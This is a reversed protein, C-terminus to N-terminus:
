LILSHASYMFNTYFFWIKVSVTSNRAINTCMSYEIHANITNLPMRGHQIFVSAARQKRSFRGSFHFKFGALGFWIQRNIQNERLKLKNLQLALILRNSNEIWWSSMFNHFLQTSGSIYKNFFRISESEHIIIDCNFYWIIIKNFYWFFPQKNIILRALLSPIRSPAIQIWSFTKCLRLNLFINKFKRKHLVKLFWFFDSTIWTKNKIFSKAWEQFFCNSYHLCNKQLLFKFFFREHMKYNKKLNKYNDNLFFMLQQLERKISKVLSFLPFNQKFKYALFWALFGPKVENNTIRFWVVHINLQFIQKAIIEFYTKQWKFAKLLGFSSFYRYCFGILADWWCFNYAKLFQQFVRYMVLFRAKYKIKLPKWYMFKSVTLYFDKDNLASILYTMLREPWISMLLKNLDTDAHWCSITYILLFLVAKQAFILNFYQHKNPILNQVFWFKKLIFDQVMLELSSQYTFISIYFYRGKQRFNFHSFLVGIQIKFFYRRLCFLLYLKFKYLLHLMQPYYLHKCFYSNEWSYVWGLRITVPNVLHGM